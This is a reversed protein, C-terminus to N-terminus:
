NTKENNFIEKFVEDFLEGRTLRGDKVCVVEVRAKVVLKENALNYIDQLFVLKVGERKMNICVAFKDGGRLPSKYEITIKSVMPDVGAAHMATMSGGHEELFAHRAHELYRQYNSNHVVCQFDLEYDRVAMELSYIYKSTDM